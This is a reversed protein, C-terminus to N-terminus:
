RASTDDQMLGVINGETDKFYALWGIGPIPMRPFAITGGHATVQAVTADLDDVGITCPFANVPQGDAPPPGRRPMLGGDIGPKDSPGTKIVWYGETFKNFEWGFVRAYFEIARAPEAAHIEFHVPRAM